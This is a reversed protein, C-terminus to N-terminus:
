EGMPDDSTRGIALGGAISTCSESSPLVSSSCRSMAPYMMRLPPPLVRRSHIATVSTPTLTSSSFPTLSRQDASAMRSAVRISPDDFIVGRPWYPTMSRMSGVAGCFGSPPAVSLRCALLVLASRRPRREGRHPPRRRTSVGPRGRVGLERRSEPPKPIPEGDAALGGGFDRSYVSMRGVEQSASAHAAAMPSLWRATTCAGAFNGAANGCRGSRGEGGGDLGGRGRSNKQRVRVWGGTWRGGRRGMESRAPLGRALLLPGTHRPQQPEPAVHVLALLVPACSQVIGAAIAVLLRARAVEAGEWGGERGGGRGGM